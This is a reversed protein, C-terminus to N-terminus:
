QVCRTSVICSSTTSLVERSKGNFREDLTFGGDLLDLIGDDVASEISLVKQNCEQYIREVDDVRLRNMYMYRNGAYKAWERDSYQLFNIPSISKDSHSFHDSYDITHVFLGDNRVVRNGENLISVLTHRPIHEFVNRSTHFDVSNSPLDLNAADGPAIYSINCMDVLDHLQLRSCDFGMLQLFREEVLPVESFLQRTEGENRKIYKIDERILEYKLYPNLDVTTVEGAGLLWFAIPM